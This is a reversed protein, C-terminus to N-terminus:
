KQAIREIALFSTGLNVTLSLAYLAWALLHPLPGLFHNYVAHIAVPLAAHAIIRLDTSWPDFRPIPDTKNHVPYQGHDNDWRDVRALIKDKLTYTSPDKKRWNVVPPANGVSM